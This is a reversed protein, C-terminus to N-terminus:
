ACLTRKLLIIWSYLCGHLYILMNALLFLIFTNCHFPLDCEILLRNLLRHHALFCNLPWYTIILVSMLMFNFHFQDAVVVFVCTILIDLVFNNKFTVNLGIKVSAGYTLQIIQKRILEVQVFFGMDSISHYVHGLKWTQLFQKM